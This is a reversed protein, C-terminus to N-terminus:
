LSNSARNPSEPTNTLLLDRLARELQEESLPKTLCPRGHQQLVTRTAESVPGGTFFIVRREDGKGAALLANLLEIGNMQPMRLDCFIADYHTTEMKLLAAAGSEAIDVHHHDSLIASVCDCVARNDDIVLIKGRPLRTRRQTQTIRPLATVARARPMVLRFTTGRGQESTVTISGSMSEIISRCMALGLGTGVGVPKTTFFPEFIQDLHEPAIGIGTDSVEVVCDGHTDTDTSIRIEAGRHSSPAGAADPPGVAEEIAHTANIFLNLFVQHLKAHNGTVEPTPRYDRHITARQRVDNGMLRLASEIVAQPDINSLTTEDARSSLRLDKVIESVREAGELANDLASETKSRFEQPLLQHHRDLQRQALRLSLLVYTLPNNVEHAVGAALAGLSAMRESLRLSQETRRLSTVDKRLSVYCPPEGDKDPIPWTTCEQEFLTGDKRRAAFSACHSKGHALAAQREALISEDTPDLRLESATKRLFERSSYGTISELAPNVYLFQGAGNTIAIGDEARELAHILLNLRENTRALEATRAEVVQELNKRHSTLERSLLAVEQQLSQFERPEWPSRKGDAGRERAYDGLAKIQSALRRFRRSLWVSLAGSILLAATAAAGSAWWVSRRERKVLDLITAEPEAAVVHWDPMGPVESVAGRTMVRALDPASRLASRSSDLVFLESQSVDTLPPLSGQTDLVVHGTADVLTLHHHGRGELLVRKLHVPDLSGEAYGLFAGGKALIPTAVQISPEELVKGVQARSFVTRRTRVVDRYYDRDRYNLETGSTFGADRRIARAVPRGSPDGLYTGAYADSIRLHADLLQRNFEGELSGNAAVAAALTELDRKRSAFFDGVRHATSLSSSVLTEDQRRSVEEAHREAQTLGFLVVPLASSVGLLAFLYSRVGFSGM